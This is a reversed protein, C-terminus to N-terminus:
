GRSAGEYRLMAISCPMVVMNSVVVGSGAEGINHPVSGDTEGTGPAAASGSEGSRPLHWHGSCGAEDSRIWRQCDTGARTRHGCRQRVVPHAGRETALAATAIPGFSQHLHCRANQTSVFGSGNWIENKVLKQCLGGRRNPAGCVHFDQEPDAASSPSRAFFAAINARTTDREAECM